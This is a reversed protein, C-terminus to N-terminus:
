ALFSKHHPMPPPIAAVAAKNIGTTPGKTEAIIPALVM